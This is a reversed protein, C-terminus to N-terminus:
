HGASWTPESSDEDLRVGRRGSEGLSADVEGDEATVRIIVSDTARQHTHLCAEYHNSGTVRARWRPMVSWSKAPLVM